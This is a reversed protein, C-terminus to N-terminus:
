PVVKLFSTLILPLAWNMECFPSFQVSFVIGTCILCQRIVSMSNSNNILKRHYIGIIIGMILCAILAGFRGFDIIFNTVFTGWTHSYFKGKSELAREIEKWSIDSQKGFLWQLRREVYTLQSLGYLPYLDYYKYMAQLHNLEHSYYYLVEIYIDSLVGLNHVTNITEQSTKANFTNEFMSIKNDIEFIQSRISSIFLFYSFFLLIFIVLGFPIPSKNFFHNQNVKLNKNKEQREKGTWMFIILSSVLVIIIAQRGASAIGVSVYSLLALYSLFKIKVGNIRYEYLSVLWVLIGLGLLANGITGIISIKYELIRLGFHIENMRLLDFLFMLSGVISYISLKKLCIKFTKSYNSTRIYSGIKEGIILM